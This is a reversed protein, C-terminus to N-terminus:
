LLGLEKEMEEASVTGEEAISKEADLMELKFKYLALQKDLETHNRLDSVPRINSM